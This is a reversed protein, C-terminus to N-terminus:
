LVCEFYKIFADMQPTDAHYPPCEQFGLKEYLRIAETLKKGTDLRLLRHGDARAQEMLDRTLAEGIGHGRGEPRV